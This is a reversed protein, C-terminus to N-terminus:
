WLVDSETKKNALSSSFYNSIQELEFQNKYDNAKLTEIQTKIMEKRRVVNTRWRILLYISALIIILVIFVFWSKQWLPPLVTLQFEKLQSPWRNNISFCKVQITHTGSSLNSISFSPQIGTEIWPTSEDKFIRYAFRQTSADSFNITGITVRIENEKWSTTIHQGPLFM